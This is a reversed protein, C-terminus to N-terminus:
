GQRRIPTGIATSSSFRGNRGPSGAVARRPTVVIRTQRFARVGFLKRVHFPDSKGVLV